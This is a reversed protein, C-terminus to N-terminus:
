RTIVKEILLDAMREVGYRQLPGFYWAPDLKRQYNVTLTVKTTQADIPDLDIRTGRLSLYHSIYSTDELIQTEVHLPGADRIQLLMHGRHTNTFFWRHYTYDARHIAGQVMSDPVVRQPMPFIKLFWHRDGDFAFPMGINERLTGAPLGSVRTVSVTESRDFSLNDHTGELASALVLAPLIYVRASRGRHRRAARAIAEAAMAFLAGVLYIPLFMLVCVIGEYLVISVGFLVAFTLCFARFYGATWHSSTRPTLLILTVTVLFPVAIYLIATTGFDSSLIVRVLLSILAVWCAFLLGPWRQAWAQFTEKIKTIETM